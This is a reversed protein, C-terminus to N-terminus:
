KDEKLNVPSHSIDELAVFQEVALVGYVTREVIGLLSRGSSVFVAWVEEFEPLEPEEKLSQPLVELVVM